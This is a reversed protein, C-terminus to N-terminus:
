NEDISESDWEIVNGTQADIEFEYETNDYKIEGEYVYKGDEKDLNIRIHSDKAGPVKELAIKIAKAEDIINSPTVETTSNDDDDKDVDIESDLISGTQADITYDYEKNSSYFEIDYEPTEDDKDLKISFNKIDAEKVEADELAIKKAEEKSIMEITASTNSSNDEKEEEHDIEYSIINGNTAHIDYDYEKTEVNFEVEYITVGDETDLKVKLNTTDAEKIGAHNLAIEKAKQESINTMNESNNAEVTSSENANAITSFGILAGGALTALVLSSVIKKKM